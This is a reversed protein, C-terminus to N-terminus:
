AARRAAHAHSSRSPFSLIAPADEQDFATPKAARRVARRRWGYGAIAVAGAALLTLTSPEPTVAFESNHDLVAWVTHNSTNVGWDGLIMNGNWPEVGVFYDNSSGFNGLTAPEWQNAISDLYDMQILGAEAAGLESLGTRAEVGLPSYDMQLVFTDTHVSGNKTQGDVVGMGTLDVVDSVLGENTAATRWAMSVTAPVSATGALITATSGVMSAGGSGTTATVKSELNAYSANKAVSATLPSGFSAPSNSADATANGVNGQLTVTVTGNNNGGAGPLTSDDVLQSASM